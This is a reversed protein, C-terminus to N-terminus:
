KEIIEIKDAIEKIQMIGKKWEAYRNENVNLEFLVIIIKEYHLLYRHIKDSITALESSGTPGKIEIAINDIVIDPRSQGRTEEIEAQRFSHKLWGHLNLQYNYELKLKERAPTFERIEKIIQYEKSESIKLQEDEIKIKEIEEPTNWYEKGNRDLYRIWGKSQYQAIRKEEELAFTIANDEKIKEAIRRREEAEANEEIRKEEAIKEQEIRIKENNRSKQIRYFVFLIISVIIVVFIISLILVVTEGHEGWWAEIVPVAYAWFLAIGVVIVGIVFGIPNRQFSNASM